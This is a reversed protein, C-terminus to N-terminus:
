SLFPVHPSKSSFHTARFHNLISSEWINNNYIVGQEVSDALKGVMARPNTCRSPNMAHYTKIILTASTSKAQLLLHLNAATPANLEM